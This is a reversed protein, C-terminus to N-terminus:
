RYWRRPPAFETEGLLPQATPERRRLGFLQLRRADLDLEARVLRYPWLRSVQYRVQLIQVTGADNTRRLFVLRGSPPRRLDIALDTPYPRRTPASEIRLVHRARWAATFRDSHAQLETPGLAWTRNWIARQWRGNFAEIGAQFGMERPPTFVPVVGLALCFRVVRGIANPHAPSGLFRTDNDFQAYAPLGGARWHGEMAEVASTARVGPMAVWAGPWSGHLSLATLIDLTGGGLFRLGEIVDFSDLEAARDAVEPLHWGAPPSPRRIRRRADLAGRRELVRAITRTSPVPGLQRAELERRIAAPGFENLPSEDHLFRRVDLILNEIAEPTRHVRRAISPRDSWDVADLPLDAARALWLQLTALAVGSRRAVSRQSAGSRVADVM